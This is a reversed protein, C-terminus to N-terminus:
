DGGLAITLLAAAALSAATRVHNLATWRRVYDMWFRATDADAPDMRDLADNLPINRAFTVAISGALYIAGAAVALVARTGGPSVVTRVALVACLLATGLWVLMFPPTPARRNISQMAAIGAPADARALGDMVFTSFAFFIGANLGCGLVTVLTAIDLAGDM